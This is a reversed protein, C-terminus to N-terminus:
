GLGKKYEWSTRQQWNKYDSFWKGNEFRCFRRTEKGKHNKKMLIRGEVKYDGMFDDCHLVIDHDTKILHFDTRREM